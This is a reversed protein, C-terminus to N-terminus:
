AFFTITDINLEAAALHEAETLFGDEFLRNTGVDKREIFIETGDRTDRKSGIGQNDLRELDDANLMIFVNRQIKEELLRLTNEMTEKDIAKKVESAKRRISDMPVKLDNQDGRDKTMVQPISINRLMAECLFKIESATLKLDYIGEM